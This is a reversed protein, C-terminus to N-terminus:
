RGTQLFQAVKWVHQQEHDNLHFFALVQSPFRKSPVSFQGKRQLESKQEDTLNKLKEDPGIALLSLEDYSVSQM